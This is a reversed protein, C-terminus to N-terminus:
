TGPCSADPAYVEAVERCQYRFQTSDGLEYSLPAQNRDKAPGRSATLGSESLKRASNWIHGVSVGSGRLLACPPSPSPKVAPASGPARPKVASPVRETGSICPCSTADDAAMGTPAETRGWGDLFESSGPKCVAPPSEDAGARAGAQSM